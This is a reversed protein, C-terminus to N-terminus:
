LELGDMDKGKQNADPARPPENKERSENPILSSLGSMLQDFDQTFQKSGAITNEAEKVFDGAEQLDDRHNKNVREYTLDSRAAKAWEKPTKSGM